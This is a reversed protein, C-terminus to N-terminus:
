RVEVVAGRDSGKDSQEDDSEHQRKAGIKQV